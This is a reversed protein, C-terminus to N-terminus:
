PTVGYAAYRSQVNADLALAAAIDADGGATDGSRRRVVGRMFLSSAGEPYLALAADYDARAKAMDGMRFSVFGRSDLTGASKPELQLALNCLDLATMLDLNLVARIWCRANQYAARNRKLKGAEDYDRMARQYDGKREYVNGRLYRAVDLLLLPKLWIAKDYDKIASDYDGKRAYATGRTIYAWARRDEDSASSQQLVETCARVQTDPDAANACARDERIGAQARAAPAFAVSVLV